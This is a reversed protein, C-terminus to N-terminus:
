AALNELAMKMLSPWHRDGNIRLNSPPKSM